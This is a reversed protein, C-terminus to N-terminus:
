VQRKQPLTVSVELVVLVLTSVIRSKNWGGGVMM